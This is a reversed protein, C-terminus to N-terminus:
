HYHTTSSNNSHSVKLADHFKRSAPPGRFKGRKSRSGSLAISGDQMQTATCYRPYGKSSIFNRARKTGQVVHSPPM